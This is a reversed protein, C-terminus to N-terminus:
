TPPRAKGFIANKYNLVYCPYNKPNGEPDAVGTRVYLYDADRFWQNVAMGALSRGTDASHHGSLRGSYAGPNEPSLRHRHYPASYTGAPAGM